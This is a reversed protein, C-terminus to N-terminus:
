SISIYPFTEHFNMYLYTYIYDIIFVGLLYYKVLQQKPNKYALLAVLLIWAIQTYFTMRGAWLAWYSLIRLPLYAICFIQLIALTRDNKIELQSYILIPVISVAFYFFAGPGFSSSLELYGERYNLLSLLPHIIINISLIFVTIIFIFLSTKGSGTIKKGNKFRGAFYPAFVFLSLFAASSHFLSAVVITIIYKLYHSNILYHLSFIVISVALMMRMINLSPHFFVLYYLLFVYPLNIKDRFKDFGILAILLTLFEFTFGFAFPDCNTLLGVLKYLVKCGIEQSTAIVPLTNWEADTVWNYVEIYDHYDTGVVDGRFGAVLSLPLAIIILELYRIFSNKPKKAQYLYCLLISVSLAGLYIFLSHIDFEM